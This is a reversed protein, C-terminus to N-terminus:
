KLKEELEDQKYQRNKYEANLFKNREVMRQILTNRKQKTSLLDRNDEVVKLLEMDNKIKRREQRIDKLEKLIKHANFTSIKSNEILHLIDQEKSDVVSLKQPLAISYNDLEDLKEVIEKIEDVM